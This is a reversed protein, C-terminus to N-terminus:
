CARLCPPIPPISRDEGNSPQTGGRRTITSQMLGSPAKRGKTSEYKACRSPGGRQPGYGLGLGLPDIEKQCGAVAGGGGGGGGGGGLM